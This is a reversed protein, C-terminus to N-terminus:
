DPRPRAPQAAPPGDMGSALRWWRGLAYAWTDHDEDVFAEHDRLLLVPAAQEQQQVRAHTMAATKLNLPKPAQPTWDKTHMPLPERLLSYCRLPELTAAVLEPAIEARGSEVGLGMAHQHKTLLGRDVHKTMIDACNSAGDIKAVAFDGARIKSQIWLLSTDLHRVRGVGLRRAIGLAATADSKVTITLPIGLDDGISRLGIGHTAGKALGTLEAEGSSLAITPQTSSWHRVCHSRRLAVGGSTSRRTVRCGAFDTGVLVTLGKSTEISNQWRFHYVIRPSNILYRILRKPRIVSDQTPAAFERCLEKAAFALDPRDQSLYNARAALARFSTAMEPSLPAGTANQQEILRVQRAGQRGQWKRKNSPTRVGYVPEPSDEPALDHFLKSFHKHRARESDFCEVVDHHNPSPM